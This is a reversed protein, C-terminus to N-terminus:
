EKLAERKEKYKERREKKKEQREEWRKKREEKTLAPQQPVAPTVATPEVAPTATTDEAFAPSVSYAGALIVLAALPIVRKFRKLNEDNLRM